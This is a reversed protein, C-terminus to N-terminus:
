ITKTKISTIRQASLSLKSFFASMLKAVCIRANYIRGWKMLWILMECRSTISNGFIVAMPPCKLDASQTEPRQIALLGM